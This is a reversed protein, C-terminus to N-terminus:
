TASRSSTATSPTPPKVANVAIRAEHDPFGLRRLEALLAARDPFQENLRSAVTFARETPM